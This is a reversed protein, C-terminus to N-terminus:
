VLLPEHCDGCVLEYVGEDGAFIPEVENGEGDEGHVDQQDCVCRGFREAACPDCHADGEYTYGIITFSQM